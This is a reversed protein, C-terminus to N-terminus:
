KHAEPTLATYITDLADRYFQPPEDGHIAIAHCSDAVVKRVKLLAEDKRKIEDVLEGIVACYEPGSFIMHKNSRMENARTLIDTM